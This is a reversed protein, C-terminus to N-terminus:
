ALETLKLAREIAEAVLGWRRQEPHLARLEEETRLYLVAPAALKLAQKMADYARGRAEERAKRQSLRDRM